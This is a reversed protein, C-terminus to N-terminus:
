IWDEPGPRSEVGFGTRLDLDSNADFGTRLDLDSNSTSDLGSIWPLASDSKPPFGLDLVPASDPDGPSTTM